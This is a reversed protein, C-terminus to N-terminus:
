QMLREDTQSEEERMVIRAIELSQKICWLKFLVWGMVRGYDRVFEQRMLWSKAFIHGQSAAEQFYSIAKEENREVGKGFHYCRGLRYSAPLYEAAASREYWEFAKQHEGIRAYMGALGFMGEKSGAEAALLYYRIAEYPDNRTCLGENIIWGAWRAALEDGQEALLAYKTLADEYRKENYLRAAEALGESSM